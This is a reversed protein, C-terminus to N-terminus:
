SISFQKKIAERLNGKCSNLLYRAKDASLGKAILVALKPNKKAEILSQRAKNQDVLSIESIMRIAREELKKNTPNVDVMYAGYTRNLRIMTLTSLSNLVIKQITGASLRTSGAIPEPGTEIAIPYEAADFLPSPKNNVISIKLAFLSRATDCAALTFPTVGSASIAILADRENIELKKVQQVAEEGRDEAGEISTTLAEIGGALIFTSREKEWGFTPFLEASDLVGLRGSTGAGVYVLRGTSTTKLRNALAAAASSINHKFDLLLNFKDIQDNILIKIIEDNSLTDLNEYRKDIQETNM